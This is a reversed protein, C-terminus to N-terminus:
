DNALLAFTILGGILLAANRREEKEVEQIKKWHRLLNSLAKKIAEDRIPNVGM